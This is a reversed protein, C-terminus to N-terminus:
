PTASAHRVYRDLAVGGGLCALLGAYWLLHAPSDPAVVLRIAVMGVVYAPVGGGLFRPVGIRTVRGFAAGLAVAVLLVLGITPAEGVVTAVATWYVAGPPWLVLGSVLAFTGCVALDRPIREM